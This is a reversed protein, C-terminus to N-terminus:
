HKTTTRMEQPPAASAAATAEPWLAWLSATAATRSPCVAWSASPRVIRSAEPLRTRSLPAGPADEQCPPSLSGPRGTRAGGACVPGRGQEEAWSVRGYDEESSACSPCGRVSPFTARVRRHEVVTPPGQTRVRRAWTRFGGLWRPVQSRCDSASVPRRPQREGLRGRSAAACAELVPGRGHLWLGRLRLHRVVLRGRGCVCM